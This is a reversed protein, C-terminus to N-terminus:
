IWKSPFPTSTINTETDAPHHPVLVINSETIMMAKGKAVAVLISLTETIPNMVGMEEIEILMVIITEELITVTEGRIWEIIQKPAPFMRTGQILETIMMGLTQAHIHVVLPKSM